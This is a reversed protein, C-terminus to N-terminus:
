RLSRETDNEIEQRKLNNSIELNVAIDTLTESICKFEELLDNLYEESLEM